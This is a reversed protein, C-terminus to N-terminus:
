ICSVNFSFFFFFIVQCDGGHEVEYVGRGGNWCVLVGEEKGEEGKQAEKLKKECNKVTIKAEEEVYQCVKQVKKQCLHAVLPRCTVVLQQLQQYTNTNNDNYRYNNGNDNVWTDKAIEIAELVGEFGEGEEWEGGEM